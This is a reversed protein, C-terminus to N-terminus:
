TVPVTSGTSPPHAAQPLDGSGNDAGAKPGVDIALSIAFAVVIEAGGLLSAKIV